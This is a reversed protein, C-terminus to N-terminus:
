VTIAVSSLLVPAPCDTKVLYDNVTFSDIDM